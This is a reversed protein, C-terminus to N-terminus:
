YSNEYALVFCLGVMGCNVQTFNHFFFLFALILVLVLWYSHQAPEVIRCVLMSVHRHVTYMWDDSMMDYCLGSTM